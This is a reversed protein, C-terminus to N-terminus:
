GWIRCWLGQFSRQQVIWLSVCLARSRSFRLSPSLFLFLAFGQVWSRHHVIVGSPYLAVRATRALVSFVLAPWTWGVGQGIGVSAMNATLPRGMWQWGVGYGIKVSAM